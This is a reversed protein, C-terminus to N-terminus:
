RTIADVLAPSAFLLRFAQSVTQQANKRATQAISVFAAFADAGKRNKSCQSVKRAIVAPRLIREARNNTPEVGEVELYRLLHGRDHQAGIGNLLNQNDDDRLIRNRLHDTLEQNLRQFRTQLEEQSLTGRAHWLALGEQLLVKLQTAFRRAPGRKIELVDSVNRIVHSQCKQQAVEALEKADYSKGRDAVMTGKYDAPIIERVEENRHRDRIQYVTVQDTDFGMLFATRGGMRWGTDDTYVVPAESVQERLEQYAAGVPGAARRLADQTIASQTVSVGTLEALVTPVRRVPIGISYHLTHAAAMLNPGVRHATAGTQDAALGPASGRVKKGCQRCRCISVRYATIRARPRMPLDTTTAVEERLPELDGGCDPCCEPPAVPVTETAEELRVERRTFPGQGPKRGPRKPNAVRKGKSFPAAQRKGGRRLQDIEERLAAIQRQQDEIMRQQTAILEILEERSLSALDAM